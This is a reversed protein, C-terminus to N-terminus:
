GGGESATDTESLFALIRPIVLDPREEILFHGAGPVLEYRLDRANTEFFRNPGSANALRDHEGVLNLTTVSLGVSPANLAFWLFDSITHRYRRATARASAPCTVRDLYTALEFEDFAGHHRWSKLAHRAFGLRRVALAGLPSALIAFH